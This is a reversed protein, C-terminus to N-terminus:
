RNASRKKYYEPDRLPTNLTSYFSRIYSVTTNRSRKSLYDFDKILSIIDKKKTKFYKAAQNLDKESSAGLYIREKTSTLRHESVAYYAGVLGAFDFDYPVLWVDDSSSSVVLSINKNMMLNWDPNGIMYQFLSALAANNQDLVSYKVNYEETVEGGVRHAMEDENEILFAWKEGIALTNSQDVWTIKALQVRLSKDTLTNYIKYALYEKLLLEDDEAKDTCHTVIKLSKHMGLNHSEVFEDSFKIKMPPFDCTKRRYKGRPKILVAHQDGGPLGKTSITASRYENTKKDSIVVNLDTAITLKIVEDSSSFLEFISQHGTAEQAFVSCPHALLLLVFVLYFKPSVIHM